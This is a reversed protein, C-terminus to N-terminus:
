IGKFWNQFMDGLVPVATTKGGIAGILGIIWFIFLLTFVIYVAIGGIAPIFRLLGALIGVIFLGLNQRIHFNVFPSKVDRNKIFAILLGIWTLYSIIGLTKGDQLSTNNINLENKEM